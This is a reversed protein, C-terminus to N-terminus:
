PTYRNWLWRVVQTVLTKIAMWMLWSAIPGLGATWENKIRGILEKQRTCFVRHKEYYGVVRDTKAQLGFAREYGIGRSVGSGVASATDCHLHKYLQTRLYDNM